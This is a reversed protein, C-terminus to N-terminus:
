ADYVMGGDSMDDAIPDDMPEDIPMPENDEPMPEPEPANDYTESATYPAGDDPTIEPTAVVDVEAALEGITATEGSQMDIVVDPETLSNSDDIDIVAMVPEEATEGLVVGQHGDVEIGTVAIEQGDETEYYETGLVQIGNDAEASANTINPDSTGTEQFALFEGYTVKEGTAVDLVMDNADLDDNGNADVLAVRGNIMVGEHGDIEIHQIANGEEDIITEHVIIKDDTEPTPTPQPNHPENVVHHYHHVQQPQADAVHEPEHATTQANIGEFYERQEDPPLAAWEDATFTGYVHGNWTFMGGPGVEARATNFAEEYTMDDTVNQAMQHEGTLADMDPQDLHEYLKAAGFAGATGLMVGAISGFTVRKWGTDKRVPANASQNASNKKNENQNMASGMFITDENTM